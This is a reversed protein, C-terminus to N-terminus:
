QSLGRKVNRAYLIQQTVWKSVTMAAFFPPFVEFDHHSRFSPIILAFIGFVILIQVIDWLLRIPSERKTEGSLGVKVMRRAMKLLARTRWNKIRQWLGLHAAPKIKKEPDYEDLASIISQKQEETMNRLFASMVENSGQSDMLGMMVGAVLGVIVEGAILGAWSFLGVWAELGIVIATAAAIALIYLAWLKLSQSRSKNNRSLRNVYGLLEKRAIVEPQGFKAVANRVAEAESFGSRREASVLTQLHPRMEEIAEDIEEEPLGILLARLRELYEEVSHYERPSNM